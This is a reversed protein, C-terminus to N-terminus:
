QTGLDCPKFHNYWVYNCLACFSDVGANICVSTDDLGCVALNLTCVSTIDHLHDISPWPFYM